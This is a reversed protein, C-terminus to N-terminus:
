ARNLRRARLQQLFEDAPMGEGRDAEAIAAKIEANLEEDIEVPEEDERHLLVSVEEGEVLPYDEVEIRGNVVRGHVLVSM